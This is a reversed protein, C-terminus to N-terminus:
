KGLKEECFDAVTKNGYFNKWDSAFDTVAKDTLPHTILMKFLDPNITVTDCGNLAVKHVQEPTKFSAALVQTKINYLKFIKVIEAVVNIGDAVINDLRNVYPAVFDAGAKAAMLAQQQTFIATMTVGIGLKKLMMTAKLGEPGIPIKVYFPDGVIERLEKAEKVIDEAKTATTQVHLMKDSGIIDRIEKILPIFDRKERSVLTPNTTVGEITYFEACERIQETNATDVFFVM